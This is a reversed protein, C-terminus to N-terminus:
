VYPLSEVFRDIRFIFLLWYEFLLTEISSDTNDVVSSEFSFKMVKEMTGSQLHM